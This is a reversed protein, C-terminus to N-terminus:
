GVLRGRVPGAQLSRGRRCPGVARQIRKGVHHRPIRRWVPQGGGAIREHPPPRAQEGHAQARQRDARDELESPADIGRREPQVVLPDGHEHLVGRQRVQKLELRGRWEAESRLLYKETVLELIPGVDQAMGGHVLVFSDHIAQRTDQSVEDHSYIRHDPLLRGRSVGFEPDDQSALCGEIMKM